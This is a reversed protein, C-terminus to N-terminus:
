LRFLLADGATRCLLRPCGVHSRQTKRDERDEEDAAQLSPHCLAIDSGAEGEGVTLVSWARARTTAAIMLATRLHLSLPLRMSKRGAALAGNASPLFGEQIGLRSGSVQPVATWFASCSNETWKTEHKSVAFHELFFFFLTSKRGGKM